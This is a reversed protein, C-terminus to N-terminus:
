AKKRWDESNPGGVGEGAPSHTGGKLGPSPTPPPDWNPCPFLSKQGWITRRQAQSLKLTLFNKAGEFDGIKHNVAYFITRFLNRANKDEVFHNPISIRSKKRGRFPESRIITVRTRPSSVSAPRLPPPRDMTQFVGSV